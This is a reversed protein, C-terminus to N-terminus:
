FTMNIVVAHTIVVTDVVSVVAIYFLFVKTKLMTDSFIESNELIPSLPDNNAINQNMGVLTWQKAFAGDKEQLVM